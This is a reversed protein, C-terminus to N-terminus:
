QRNAPIQQEQLQPTVQMVTTKEAASIISMQERCVNGLTRIKEVVNKAM